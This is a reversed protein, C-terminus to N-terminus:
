DKYPDFGGAGPVGAHLGQPSGCTPTSTVSAGPPTTTTTSEYTSEAGLIELVKAVVVDRGAYAYEGALSMAAIYSQGLDSDLSFLVPPSDM